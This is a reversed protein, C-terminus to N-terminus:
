KWYSLFIFYKNRYYSGKLTAGFWQELKKQNILTRGMCLLIWCIVQRTNYSVCHAHMISIFAFSIYGCIAQFDDLPTKKHLFLLQSALSAYTIRVLTLMSDAFCIRFIVFVLMQTICVYLLMFPKIENIHNQRFM